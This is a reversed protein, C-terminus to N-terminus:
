TVISSCGIHTAYNPFFNEFITEACECRWKEYGRLLTPCSIWCQFIRHAPNFFPLIERGEQAGRMFRGINHSFAGGRSMELMGGEGKNSFGPAM